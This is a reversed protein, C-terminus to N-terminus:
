TQTPAHLNKHLSQCPLCNSQFHFWRIGNFVYLSLDLVLFTDRRVLLSQDKSALLQLISTCKRIVIYLFTLLFESHYRTWQEQRCWRIPILDWVLETFIPPHPACAHATTLGQALTTVKLTGVKSTVHMGVSKGHWSINSSTIQWLDKMVTTVNNQINWVLWFLVKFSIKLEPFMFLNHLPWILCTCHNNHHFYWM